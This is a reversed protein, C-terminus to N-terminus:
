TDHRTSSSQGALSTSKRHRRGSRRQITHNTSYDTRGCPDIYCPRHAPNYRAIKATAIPAALEDVDITAHLIRTTMHAVHTDPIRHGAHVPIIRIAIQNAEAERCQVCDRKYYICSVHSSSVGSQWTICFM